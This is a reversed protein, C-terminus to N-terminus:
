QFSLDHRLSILRYYAPEEIFNEVLPFDVHDVIDHDLAGDFM